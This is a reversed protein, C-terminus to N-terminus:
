VHLNLSYLNHDSPMKIDQICDWLWFWQCVVFRDGDTGFRQWNIVLENLPHTIFSYSDGWWKEEKETAVSKLPHFCADTIRNMTLQPLIPLEDFPLPIQGFLTILPSTPTNYQDALSPSRHFVGILPCCSIVSPKLRRKM